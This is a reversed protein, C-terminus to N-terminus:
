RLDVGPLRDRFRELRQTLFRIAFYPSVNINIRNRLHMNTVRRIREQFEGSGAGIFHSLM